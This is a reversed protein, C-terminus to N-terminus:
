PCAKVAARSRCVEVSIKRPRAGIMKLVRSFMAHSAAQRKVGSRLADERYELWLESVRTLSGNMFRARATGWVEPRFDELWEFADRMPRSMKKKM